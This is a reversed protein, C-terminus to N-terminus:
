NGGISLFIAMAIISVAFSGLLLAFLLGNIQNLDDLLRGEVDCSLAFAIASACSLMLRHLMVSILTPLVASLLLVIGVAGVTGKVVSASAIVTSAADGLMNGIVPVFVGSAFRLGKLAFGDASKAIATQFYLVFGTMTFVFSLLTTATSKVMATLSSLNVGTPLAGVLCMAFLIRLLPLLLKTCILSVINLFLLLASNNAAAVSANGGFVYLSSMIPMLTSLTLTLSEMCAIVAVYLSYLASYIAGSLALLSIYGCATDLADNEGFRLLRMVACLTLTALISGFSRLCPLTESKISDCFIEYAKEFINIQEDGSLESESLRDSKLKDAEAQAAISEADSSDYASASIAFIPVFIALLLAFVLKKM